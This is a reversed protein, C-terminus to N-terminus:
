WPKGHYVITCWPTVMTYWPTFPVGTHYVM